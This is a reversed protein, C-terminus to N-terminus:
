QSTTAKPAHVAEMFTKTKSHCTSCSALPETHNEPSLKQGTVGYISTLGNHCKECFAREKDEWSEGIDYTFDGAQNEHGFREKLLKLNTAGHTEHCEACPIPGNQMSGDLALITHKSETSKYFSQIDLIKNNAKNKTEEEKLSNHCSFCLAFDEEPQNETSTKRYHLIKYASGAKEKYVRTRNYHCEECLTIRSDIKGVVKGELLDGTNHEFEVPIEELNYRYLRRDHCEACQRNNSDITGVPKDEWTVEPNHTFIVQEAGIKYDKTSRDHCEECLRIRSDIKGVPQGEWLLELNHKYVYHDKLLNPNDESWTLHPNHCSTCSGASSSHEGEIVDHNSIIDRRQPNIANEPDSYDSVYDSSDPFPAAVTGDHCVLCYNNAMTNTQISQFNPRELKSKTTNHTGHCNSCTNVNNTYYGHPNREWNAPDNTGDQVISSVTTFKKIIPFVKNGSNDTFFFTTTEEETGTILRQNFMLYYTTSQELDSVPDFKLITNEVNFTPTVTGEIVGEKSFVTIPHNIIQETIAENDQIKIIIDTDVSVRTLEGTRLIDVKEISKKKTEMDLLSLFINTIYPRQIDAQPDEEVSNPNTSDIITGNTETTTTDNPIPTSSEIIQKEPTALEQNTIEISASDDSATEETIPLVENGSNNSTLAISKEPLLPLLVILAMIINFLKINYFKALRNM